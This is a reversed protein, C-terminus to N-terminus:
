DLWYPQRRARCQARRTRHDDGAATADQATEFTTPFEAVRCELARYWRRQEPSMDDHSLMPTAEARAVAALRTISDPVEDARMRLREVLAVFDEPSLGARGAMEAIKRTRPPTDPGPLHDNFGLMGIRDQGIWDAVEAEADLNFTEYRLHFRTDAGLASQMTELANLIARANDMSRLGPEWSGTVGHYVTTIGNSICQRDSDVLAVDIPFVSAPGQCSSGNLPM